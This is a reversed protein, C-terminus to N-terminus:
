CKLRNTKIKMSYRSVLYKTNLSSRIKLLLYSIKRMNPNPVTPTTLLSPVITEQLSLHSIPALAALLL